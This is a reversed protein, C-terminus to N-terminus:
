SSRQAACPNCPNCPNTTPACPNCPNRSRKVACPNCPNCAKRAACPNCPNCPNKAACPNPEFTKQLEVTYAALAALEGSNWPLTKSQMPVLLCFQAMEDAHIKGVGAMQTPMAVEHPYPKAFSANLSANNGHCSSCSLGNTSLSTDNWLRKGEAVLKSKKGKALKVGKPRVCDKADVKKAACPNCPNCAKVAACPNCPNCVRKVACPNCPSCAKAAACPNCPNCTKKRTACPNCPNCARKVACPNCPNCAQALVASRRVACPNATSAAVAVLTPASVTVLGSLVAACLPKRSLHSPIRPTKM